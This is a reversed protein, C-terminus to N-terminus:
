LKLRELLSTEYLLPEQQPFLDRVPIFQDGTYVESKVRMLPDNTYKYIVFMESSTRILNDRRTGDTPKRGFISEELLWLKEGQRAEHLEQIIFKAFPNISGM